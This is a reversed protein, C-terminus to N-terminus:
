VKDVKLLIVILGVAQSFQVCEECLRVDLMAQLLSKHRLWYSLILQGEM